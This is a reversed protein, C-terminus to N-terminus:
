YHDPSYAPNDPDEEAEFEDEMQTRKLRVKQRCKKQIEELAKDARQVRRNDLAKMASVFNKGAPLGMVKFIMCKTVNEKNYSSIDDYVGLKLTSLRVFVRKPIRSRIVNNLSEAMNQTGGHACKALLVPNSLDRFIPEIEELVCSPLHTHEAHKYEVKELISKQYKCWTDPDKPCM